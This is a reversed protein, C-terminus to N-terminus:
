SPDSWRSVVQWCDAGSIRGSREGGSAMPFFGRFSRGAQWGERQFRPPSPVYTLWGM